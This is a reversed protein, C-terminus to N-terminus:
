PIHLRFYPVFFPGFIRFNRFPPQGEGREKIAIEISMIGYEYLLNFVYRLVSYYALTHITLTDCGKQSM